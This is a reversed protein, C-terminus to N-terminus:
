QGVRRLSFGRVKPENTVDLLVHFRGDGGYYRGDVTFNTLIRLWEELTMLRENGVDRTPYYASPVSILARPAVHLEAQLHAVVEGDTLHEFLGQHYVADFRRRWHALDLGNGQEIRPSKVGVRELGAKATEIVAPDLELAHPEFGLEALRAYFAGTGIGVELLKAGKPLVEVAHEFFAAHHQQIHKLQQPTATEPKYFGAWTQREARERKPERQFVDELADVIGKAIRDLSHERRYWAAGQGARRWAFERHDYHWRLADVAADWDPIYWEGGLPSPEAHHVPVADVYGSRCISRYGTHDAVIAPLGIAMAERGPRGSGEGKPLFLAVDAGRAFDIMQGPLWDANVVEVRADGIRDVDALDLGFVNGRTKIRLRCDPYKEKPFARRFVEVTELPSKRPYMTAWTAVVFEAREPRRCLEAEYYHHSASLEVVKIPTYVSARRWMDACWDCPTLLLDVENCQWTWHPYRQRPNSAEYMTLGVRYRTPLQHFEGPTAYCLGVQHFREAPRELLELTRRELGTPNLFWLCRATLAVGLRDWALALDEAQSGYGDCVNFPALFHFSPWPEDDQAPVRVRYAPNNSLLLGLKAPVATERGPALTVGYATFVQPIKTLNTVIVKGM